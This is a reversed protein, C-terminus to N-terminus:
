FGVNSSFMFVSGTDSSSFTVNNASFIGVIVFFRKSLAEVSTNYALVADLFEKDTKAEAIKTVNTGAIRYSTGLAAHAAQVDKPVNEMELLDRGLAAMDFGLQYVRSSKEPDTRDEAQDKLIQVASPHTNEYAQILAGVSNGYEKLASAEPSLKTQFDTSILGSPIYSFASSVSVDVSSTARPQALYALLKTLDNGFDANAVHTDGDSTPASIPIYGLPTDPAYQKIIDQASQSKTGLKARDGTSFINGASSWNTATGGQSVGSRAAVIMGALLVISAVGLITTLYPHRHM